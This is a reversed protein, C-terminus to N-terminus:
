NIEKKGCYGEKRKPPVKSQHHKLSGQSRYFDHVIKLDEFGSLQLIYVYLDSLTKNQLNEYSIKLKHWDKTPHIFIPYNQPYDFQFNEFLNCKNNWLSNNFNDPYLLYKIVSEDEIILPNEKQLETFIFNYIAKNPTFLFIGGKPYHKEAPLRLPQYTSIVFEVDKTLNFYEDINILLFADADIFCLKDYQIFNYAYFKNFTFNYRNEFVNHNKNFGYCPIIEYHDFYDLLPHFELEKPIMVILDYKSKVIRLSVQLYSAANLYEENTALTIYACKM